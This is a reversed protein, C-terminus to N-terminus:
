FQIHEVQNLDMAINAVDRTFAAHTGSAFIDIKENVNAGNFLLTDLGDQGNVHDSGDGPNWVFTDDGAGLLAGDAGRGGIVLDNGDGGLLLDDGDGGTITDNGAGGDITLSALVGLGNGASIADNGDGGSILLQDIAESHAITVQEALGSVTIVGNAAAIGLQDNGNTANVTVKD